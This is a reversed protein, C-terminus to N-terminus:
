LRQSALGRKSPEWSPLWAGFLPSSADSVLGESRGASASISDAVLPRRVPRGAQDRNPGTWTRADLWFM